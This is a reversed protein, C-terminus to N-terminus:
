MIIFHGTELGIILLVLLSGLVIFALMIGGVGALFLFRSVQDRADKAYYAATDANQAAVDAHNCATELYERSEDLYREIKSTAIRDPQKAASQENNPEDM